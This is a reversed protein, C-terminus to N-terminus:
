TIATRTTSSAQVVPIDGDDGAAAGVATTVTRQTDRLETPFGFDLQPEVRGVDALQREDVDYVGPREDDALVWIEATLLTAPVLKWGTASQPEVRFCLECNEDFVPVRFTVEGAVASVPACCTCDQGPAIKTAPGWARLQWTVDASV